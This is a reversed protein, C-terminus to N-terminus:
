GRRVTVRECDRAVKDRPDVKAKDTGSGCRVTDARFDAAQIRDNGDGGNLLDRGGGGTIKDNDAGGAIEDKGGAGKADDRGAGGGILDPGAGGRISDNGSGGKACDKAARTRLDDNGGEGSLTDRGGTGILEDNADTGRQQLAQSGQCAATAEDQGGTQARLVVNDYDFTADPIVAAPLALETVLRIRYNSGIELQDPDVAVSALSNWDPLNAVEVRDIVEVSTGADANDLFVSFDAEPILQLLAGADVRRDLSFRVGDPEVGAVGDYTFDPSQYAIATGSAVGALGFLETRLFGDAEGGAGGNAVYAHDVAPCTLAPICLGNTYSDSGVWGGDTTAFTRSETAPHYEAVAANAAPAAALCLGAVSMVIVLRNAKLFKM